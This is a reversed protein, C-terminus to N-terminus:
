GLSALTVQAQLQLSRPILEAMAATLNREM